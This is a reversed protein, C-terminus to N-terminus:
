RPAKVKRGDLALTFLTRLQEIGITKVKRGDLALGEEKASMTSDILYMTRQSHPHQIGNTNVKRGDLAQGGDKASMTSDIDYM